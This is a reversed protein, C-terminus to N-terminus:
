AASSVSAVVNMFQEYRQDAYHGELFARVNPQLATFHARTDEIARVFDTVSTCRYIVRAPADTMVHPLNSYLLPLGFSLLAFGRNAM